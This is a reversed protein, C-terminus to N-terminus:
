KKQSLIGDLNRLDSYHLLLVGNTAALQEAAPTYRNNTVVIGYDAQEHAKGAAIEQVAKNGVPRAHLKCQLVVRVCNKDAIVDIGQDRSKMTVRADWGARRLEEACFIEFETPHMDDDFTQFPPEDLMAAEVANYIINAVEEVNRELASQESETLSPEICNAVFYRIEKQWADIILNGYADERVLQARKRALPILHQETVSEVKQLLSQWARHRFHARAVAYVVAGGLIVIAAVSYFNQPRGKSLRDLFDVAGGLIIIAFFGYGVCGALEDDIEYNKV